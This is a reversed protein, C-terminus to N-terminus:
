DNAVPKRGGVIYGPWAAVFHGTRAAMELERWWTDYDARSLNGQKVANALVGEDVLKCLAYTPLVVHPAVSVDLLGKQRFLRRLQRGILPSPVSGMRIKRIRDMLAQDSVDVSFGAYDFDFVVVHGGPRVIRVMEAIASEPDDLFILFREARCLDFSNDALDLKGADGVFFEVPASAESARRRAEAILAESKDMGVVRGSAGVYGALKQVEHGLGCGVDLIREGKGVPFLELIRQRYEQVSELNNANDLYRFFMAQKEAEGVDQFGKHIDIIVNGEVVKAVKERRTIMIGRSDDNASLKTRGKRAAGM